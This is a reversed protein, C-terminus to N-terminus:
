LFSNVQDMKQHFIVARHIIERLISEDFIDSLDQESSVRIAAKNAVLEGISPNDLPGFAIIPKLAGLCEMVKTSFSLWTNKLDQINNSELILLADSQQLARDYELGVVAEAFRISGWKLSDAFGSVAEDGSYVEVVLKRSNNSNFANVFLMFEYLADSRGSHLSGFYRILSVQKKVDLRGRGEAGLSAPGSSNFSLCGHVGFSACYIDNMKQSIFHNKNSIKFTRLFAHRLSREHVGSRFSYKGDGKYDFVYDDTVFTHLKVGLLQSLNFALDHLFILDGAVFIIKQVGQAKLKPYLETVIRKLAVRMLCERIIKLAKFSLTGRSVLSRYFRSPKAAKFQPRYSYVKQAQLTDAHHSDLLAGFPSVLFKRVDSCLDSSLPTTYLWVLENAAYFSLLYKLTKGNNTTDSLFNNAIVLAVM